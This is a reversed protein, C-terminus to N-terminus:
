SRHTVWSVPYFDIEQDWEVGLEDGLRTFCALCLVHSPFRETVARWIEDPVHFGVRNVEHCLSCIERSAHRSVEPNLPKNCNHVTTSGSVHENGSVQTRGFLLANGYVQANDYVWVNACVQANGFVRSTAYVRANGFVMANEYVQANGFVEANDFVEAAGSVRSNGFVKANGYVLADSGVYAASDVKATNQVWGGGNSHRHWTEPTASPFRQKLEEFTM